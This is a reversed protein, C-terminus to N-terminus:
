TGYIAEDSRATVAFQALLAVIIEGLRKALMAAWAKPMPLPEILSATGKIQDLVLDFRDGAPDVVKAKLQGDRRAEITLAHCYDQGDIRAKVSVKAGTALDIRNPLIFPVTVFPLSERKL